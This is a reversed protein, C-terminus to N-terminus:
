RIMKIIAKIPLPPEVTHAVAHCNPCILAIDDMTTTSARRRQGIPQKQHHAVLCFIKIGYTDAFGMGCVECTGDSLAKKAAIIARNRKRLTVEAKFPLGETVELRHSDRRKRAILRELTEVKKPTLPLVTYQEAGLLTKVPTFDKQWDVPVQHNWPYGNPDIIRNQTDYKYPGLVTGKEIIYGGDKMYIIDGKKMKYVVRKLSAKQAPALDAWLEKPEGEVHKSLNTKLIPYYTIAAVNYKLCYPWMPTGQNGCRFAMRWATKMKKDDTHIRSRMFWRRVIEFHRQM